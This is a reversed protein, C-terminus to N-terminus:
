SRWSGRTRLWGTRWRRGSTTTLPIEQLMRQLSAKGELMQAKSSGKLLYFACRACAMRHLCRDFFDYSCCGHGLDYFRWPEGTTAAGSKVADRDILVEIM